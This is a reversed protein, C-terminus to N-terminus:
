LSEAGALPIIAEITTGSKVGSHLAFRGGLAEARERMSSLGMSDRKWEALRKPAIGRGHDTIRLVAEKPQLLLRVEVETAGSHKSVNNIAEQGIRWLAEEVTRPLEMVGNVQTRVSLKLREGYQRLGTALGEELGSPRLQMILERMEKLARQSLGQMDQLTEVLLAEQGSSLLSAAGRSMMGLSFLTQNVSDHLDRALKNREELRAIERRNEETRVREFTVGIQGALAEIAEADTRYLDSPQDYGILLIGAAGKGPLVVRSAAAQAVRPLLGQCVLWDALKMAEEQPIPAASLKVSKDEHWDMVDMAMQLQPVITRGEAYIARVTLDGGTPELLAASPWDFRCGILEMAHKWLGAREKARAAEAGLASGYEGLKAFLSARRQEAAYLRMREIASGIQYAVAQLLALEEKEFRIKDPAAVNLLGFRKNGSRLPVTAHHTIGCTDGWDCAAANEIRKCNMINVANKLRGDGYRNLCWCSGSRMPEADRYSLGPPLGSGAAFEYTGREDVIFMWGATLGTLELLKELVVNLMSSMDNSENLTEAITKLTTLEQIRLDRQDM